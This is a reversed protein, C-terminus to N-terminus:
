ENIEIQKKQTSFSDTWTATNGISDEAFIWTAQYTGTPTDEPWQYEITYTGSGVAPSFDRYADYVAGGSDEHEFRFYVRAIDTEDTVDAEIQMIEGSKFQDSSITFDRIVPGETDSVESNITIQKEETSFSDTWDAKNGINDEAFIWTAEYTGGPTNEPWQYEITYTGSDVPPSFDRYADYVAGGGDEHEFRFYIRAIDTEDTVDVEIQMTERPDFEQSPITFDTIKPGETDSTDSNIEIETESQPFDDTYDARNGISDEAYIWTAEYTGDSADEPWQYEITYAGSDVPPSFDRYADYVAGGGAENEFRFYLRSIKNQDSVEVNIEMMEGSSFQDGSISFDDIEPGETDSSDDSDDDETEPETETETEEETETETDAETEPPTEGSEPPSTDTNNGSNDPNTTCGTLSVTLGAAVGSHLLSRRKM